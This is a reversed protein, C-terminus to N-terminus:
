SALCTSGLWRLMSEDGNLIYGADIAENFSRRLGDWWRRVADYEDGKRGYTPLDFCTQMMEFWTEGAGYKDLVNTPGFGGEFGTWYARRDAELPFAAHVDMCRDVQACAVADCELQPIRESRGKYKAVGAASMLEALADIEKMPLFHLAYEHISSTVPISRLKPTSTDKVGDKARQSMRVNDNRTWGDAPAVPTEEEDSSDEDPSDDEDSSDKAAAPAKGAAAAPAKGAAKSRAAAPAPAPKEGRRVFTLAKRDWEAHETDGFDCVWKTGNGKRIVTGFTTGTKWEKDGHKSKAYGEGWVQTLVSVHDGDRLATSKGSM